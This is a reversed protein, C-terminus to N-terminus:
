VWLDREIDFAFILWLIDSFGVRCYKGCSQHEIRYLAASEICLEGRGNVICVGGIFEHQEHDVWGGANGDM